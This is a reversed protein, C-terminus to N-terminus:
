RIEFWSLRKEVYMFSTYEYIVNETKPVYYLKMTKTDGTSRYIIANDLNLDFKIIVSTSPSFLKNSWNIHYPCQNM